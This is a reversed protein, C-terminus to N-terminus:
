GAHCNFRFGSKGSHIRAIRTKIKPTIPLDPFAKVFAQLGAATKGADDCTCIGTLLETELSDIEGQAESAYADPYTTRFTMWGRYLDVMLKGDFRTCGSEETQQQIYAPFPGNGDPETRSYIDFFARDAKTGQKRALTRFYDVSPRVVIIAERVVIFGQMQHQVQQYQSESLDPLIAQIQPSVQMGAEFVPEIPSKGRSTKMEGMASAYDAVAPPIEVDAASAKIAVCSMAIAAALLARLLARPQNISTLM